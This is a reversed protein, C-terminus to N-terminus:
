VESKSRSSCRGDVNDLSGGRRDLRASLRQEDGFVLRRRVELENSMVDLTVREEALSAAFASDAVMSDGGVFESGDVVRECSEVRLLFALVAAM